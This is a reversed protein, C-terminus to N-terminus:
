VRVLLGDMDVDDVKRMRARMVCPGIPEPLGKWAYVCVVGSWHWLMVDVKLDILERKVGHFVDVDSVLWKWVYM